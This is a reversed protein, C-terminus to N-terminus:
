PRDNHPCSGTTLRDEILNNPERGKRDVNVEIPDPAKMFTSQVTM